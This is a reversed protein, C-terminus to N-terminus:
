AVGTTEVLGSGPLLRLDDAIGKARDLLVGALTRRAPEARAELLGPIGKIMEGGGAAFVDAVPAVVVLGVHHVEVAAARDDGHGIGLLEVVLRRDVPLGVGGILEALRDA